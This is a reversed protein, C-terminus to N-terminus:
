VFINHIISYIRIETKVVFGVTGPVVVNAADVVAHLNTMHLFCRAQKTYMIRASQSFRGVKVSQCAPLHTSYSDRMGTM